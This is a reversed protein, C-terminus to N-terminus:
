TLAGAMFCAHYSAARYGAEMGGALQKTGCAAKSEKGTVRLLCKAMLQQWTEGVEVPRIGPQKDLAIMRGTIM